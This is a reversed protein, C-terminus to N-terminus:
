DIDLLFKIDDWGLKKAIGDESVVLSDIINKKRKQLELIKEEITGKCILKYATVTNKQGIRHARDIAQDEVSPNWWPEYLIVTDASTLNLGVGGTKLSLLFVKVDPNDNFNKVAAARDKTSGDMYEFPIKEKKLYDGIITLMEVFQSFVLVKHGGSLAEQLMEKLLNLKASVMLKHGLDVNALQPHCCIQRLRLLVTLIMMRNKDLGEKQYADVVKRRALSLMEAYCRAQTPELECLSVQEIKDPLEKIVEKKLRRLLFPKIKRGLKALSEKDQEKLIPNEFQDKFREYSGMFGPMLFDFISWLDAVSNELPTGTLVLRHRSKLKKSMRANLTYRNKINQAEDLIVYNFDYQEYLAADRRLLAYSTIIVDYDPLDHIQLRRDAGQPILIKLDPTFKNVEFQWNWVLTTPCIVLNPLKVGSEKEKKLLALVQLTKGLGMEDALIGGFKFGKLFALWDLGKQQYDRLVAKLESPAESKEISSFQTLREHLQNFSAEYNSELNRRGAEEMLFPAQFAPLRGAKNELEELMANAQDFEDKAILLIEGSKLKIYSKGSMLQRRIDDHTFTQDIDKAHYTIDFHFWDIGKQGEGGFNVRPKIMSKFNLKTQFDPAYTVLARQKLLPLKASIFEMVDETEYIGLRRGDWKVLCQEILFRFLDREAKINRKIWGLSDTKGLPIFEPQRVMEEVTMVKKGYVTKLDLSMIKSTYDLHVRFQPPLEELLTKTLAEDKYIIECSNQLAPITTHLLKPVEEPPISIEENVRFLSELLAGDFADPFSFIRGGDFNIFWCPRGQITSGAIVQSPDDPDKLVLKAQIKQAKRIFTIAIGVRKDGRLTLRNGKGEYFEIGDGVTEKFLIALEHWEIAMSHEDFDGLFSYATRLAHKQEVSFADLPPYTSDKGYLYDKPNALSALNDVDIIDQDNAIQIQLKVDEKGSGFHSRTPLIFRIVPKTLVSSEDSLLLSNATSYVSHDGAVNEGSSAYALLAAVGHKCLSGVEYSCTCQSPMDKRKLYIRVHYPTQKRGSVHASVIGNKNSWKRVRGEFFYTRGRLFAADGAM